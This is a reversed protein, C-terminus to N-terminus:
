TMCLGSCDNEAGSDMGPMMPNMALHREYEEVAEAVPKLRTHLYPEGAFGRATRLQRMSADVRAADAFDDPDTKKLHLWESDSRFPCGACASRPLEREPYRQAFWQICDTRSMNMEILPYRNTIWREEADRMRGPEDTSIGLWQEVRISTPVRQRPKVGLLERVRARIPRIKYRDTCQRHQVKGRSGDPNLVFVPVLSAPPKGDTWTGWGATDARISRGNSVIEIPVSSLESMWRLHRYVSAPEWKTDAFLAVDPRPTILGLHAMLLLVSSQVGAGLSLAVLNPRTM